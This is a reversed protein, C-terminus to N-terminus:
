VFVLQLRIYCKFCKLIWNRTSTSLFHLTEAMFLRVERGSANGQMSVRWSAPCPAAAFMQCWQQPFPTPLFVFCITLTTELFQPEMRRGLHHNPPAFDIYILSIWEMDSGNKWIVRWLFSYVLYLSTHSSQFDSYLFGLQPLLSAPSGLPPSACPRLEPLPTCPRCCPPTIPSCFGVPCFLAWQCM